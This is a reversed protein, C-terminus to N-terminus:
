EPLLKGKQVFCTDDVSLMGPAHGVQKSLLGQYIDPLPQEEFPPAPLSSSCPASM